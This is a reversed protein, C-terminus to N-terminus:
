GGSSQLQKLLHFATNRISAMLCILVVLTFFQLGIVILGIAYLWSLGSPVVRVADGYGPEGAGVLGMILGCIVMAVGALVLSALGTWRQDSMGWALRPPGNPSEYTKEDVWQITEVVVGRQSACDSAEKRMLGHFVLERPEATERDLGKIIWPM